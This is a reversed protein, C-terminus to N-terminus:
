SLCWSLVLFYFCQSLVQFHCSLCSDLDTFSLAYVLETTQHVALVTKTADIAMHGSKVANLVLFSDYNLRGVVVEPIKDWPYNRFVLVSERICMNSAGLASEHERVRACVCVCVCVCVCARVCM